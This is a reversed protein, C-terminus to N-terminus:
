RNAEAALRRLRVEVDAVDPHPAQGTPRPGRSEELDPGHLLDVDWLWASGGDHNDRPRGLVLEREGTITNLSHAVVFTPMDLQRNSNAFLAELVEAPLPDLITPEVHPTLSQRAVKQKTESRETWRISHIQEHEASAILLRVRGDTWGPSGNLNSRTITGPVIQPLTKVAESSLEQHLIDLGAAREGDSVRYKECSFVRDLRDRFLSHRASGTATADYGASEPMDNLVRDAADLFGWRLGRLAGLEALRETVDSKESM